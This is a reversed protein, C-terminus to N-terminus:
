ESTLTLEAIQAQIEDSLAARLRTEFESLMVNKKLSPIHM